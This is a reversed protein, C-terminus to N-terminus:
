WLRNGLILLGIFLFLRDIDGDIGFAKVIHVLLFHHVRFRFRELPRDHLRGTVPSVQRYDNGGIGIGSVLRYNHHHIHGTLDAESM